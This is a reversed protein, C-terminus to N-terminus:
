YILNVYFTVLHTEQESVKGLEDIEQGWVVMTEKNKPEEPLSGMLEVRNIIFTRDLNDMLHQHFKKESDTTALFTQYFKKRFDSSVMKLINSDLVVSVSDTVLNGTIILFEGSKIVSPILDRLTTKQFLTVGTAKTLEEYINKEKIM